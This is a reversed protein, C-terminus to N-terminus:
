QGSPYVFSCFIYEKVRDFWRNITVQLLLTIEQGEARGPPVPVFLRPKNGAQLTPRLFILWHAPKVATIPAPLEQLDFFQPHNHFM